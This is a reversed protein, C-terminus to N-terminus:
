RSARRASAAQRTATVVRALARVTPSEFLAKVPLDVGFAERIRSLVRTVLLSHGGLHFFNDDPGVGSRGLVEEWLHALLEETPNLFLAAEGEPEAAPRLQALAQRDVKGSPSLPLAPLPVFGAPVMFGPLERLLFARLESVEPTGTFYAVLTGEVALVVAERVAPHRALVTEIEGLEIRFGHIKVQHDIRGLFELEGDPLLRVLDGTRYLREGPTGASPDPVFREATLEPRGLYGRALGTGGVLLEGPEGAPVPRSGRDFVNVRVNTIPRGLTPAKGDTGRAPVRGATTVVTGETPGYCNILAFPLSPRPAQHLRDGGCLLFRLASGPQWERDLVAEALLSPMFSVTIGQAALWGPLSEASTRVEDPVLHLSAGRALYPWIEFVSADFGVGALVTGRDAATLGFLHAYWEVLNLLSRHGIEVGKPRGTSGSTYIVYALNGALLAPEPLAGSAPLNLRNPVDPEHPFLCQIGQRAALEAVRGRRTFLVPAQCDTLQFALREEPHLPDLAVYSGGAKLVALASIVLEPSRELCLGVKVEPGVGLRSLTGALRAARRDLEGYTLRREATVVALADPARQAQAAVLEHVWVGSPLDSRTDNWEVLTQQREAASLLLLDAPPDPAAVSGEALIGLAREICHRLRGALLPVHPAALMTYHDGPVVEVEIPEATLPEWGNAPLLRPDDPAERPRFVTLRGAYSGARYGALARLNAKYVGMMRQVQRPRLDARLLGAERARALLRNMEEEGGDPVPVDLWAPVNGLLAAQDRLFLRVLEADGREAPTEAVAPSWTDLLAVLGVERGRARLQRAMEFAVLGGFSWGGLLYPGAPEAAEVAAVYAAAMATLDDVPTGGELGAAQVGYFPQEPGMARALEAYSFVTGGVAHVCFFAPRGPLGAHLKVLLIPTETGATGATKAPAAPRPLGAGGAPSLGRLRKELMERKGASLAGQRSALEARQKAVSESVAPLVAPEPEASEEPPAVAAAPEELSGDARRRARRGTGELEGWVGIPAPRDGRLVIGGAASWEVSLQHRESAALLPLEEIPLEPNAVAATFLALLHGRWRAATTRDLRATNYGLGGTLRGKSEWFRLSVAVAIGFATGEHHPVVDLKVGALEMAPMPQNQLTFMANVLPWSGKGRDPRLAEVVRAFPLDQHDYAGLTTERVRGLLGRFSPNGGTPTRLVLTNVFFGILGETEEQDRNAIPSGVAVDDQGAHRHLLTQYAALLVMFLSAGQGRALAYLGEALAGELVLPQDGAAFIQGEVPPRDAPLDLHALDALQRTWYALQEELVEGRFWQRQWLAFDAYQVPLEPLPSPEGRSWADYIATLERLLIGLSWGDSVIHHLTFLLVYDGEALRVLISRLVPGSVLDFPRVEEEAIRRRLEPGAARDPLGGLDVLPLAPRWDPDIVQSPRGATATFRTRLAEHRRVIERLSAALVEVRLSGRLRVAAPMSYGADAGGDGSGGSVALQEIFWLREQAYSLPIEGGRPLPRLPPAARGDEGTLVEVAAALGAVTPTDFLARLPLTVGFATSVRSLVQTALLSHGGLEFFSDEVGMEETRLIERWIEAVRAETRNRPAIRGPAAAGAAIEEPEPLARRDVKGHPTLPLRDLHVFAAPVM